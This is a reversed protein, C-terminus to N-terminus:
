RTWQLLQCHNYKRCLHKSPCKLSRSSLFYESLVLSSGQTVSYETISVVTYIGLQNGHLGHAFIHVDRYINMDLTGMSFLVDTFCGFGFGFIVMFFLDYSICCGSLHGVSKWKVLMPFYAYTCM